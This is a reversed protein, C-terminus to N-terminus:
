TKKIMKLNNLIKEKQGPGAGANIPWFTSQPIAVSVASIMSNKLPDVRRLAFKCCEIM